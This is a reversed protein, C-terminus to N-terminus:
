AQARKMSAMVRSWMQVALNRTYVAGLARRQRLAQDITRSSTLATEVAWRLETETISDDRVSVTVVVRKKSWEHTM